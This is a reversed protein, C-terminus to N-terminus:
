NRRAVIFPRSDRGKSSHSETALIHFGAAGVLRNLDAGTFVSVHPAKGIARMAPLLVLRVLPNMDGLCPTKSIFLGGPVLLGHILKLTGPVDRVLHLYNFGLVADFPAADLAVSEVTAARFALGHVPEAAHKEEAIAIMESSIDTALYSQVGGALRLASTGTGCGLELVRDGPGLLARTRALTREYGGQDSIKAKAYKRSARDWFQADSAQSMTQVGKAGRCIM